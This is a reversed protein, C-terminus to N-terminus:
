AMAAGPKALAALALRTAVALGSVHRAKAGAPQHGKIVDLHTRVCSWGASDAAAGPNKTCPENACLIKCREQLKFEAPNFLCTHTQSCMFTRSCVEEPPLAAQHHWMATGTSSACNLWNCFTSLQGSKFGQESFPIGTTM